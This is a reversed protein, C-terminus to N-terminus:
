HAHGHEEHEHDHCARVETVEEVRGAALAAIADGVTAAAVHVVRIGKRGLQDLAGGGIANVIVCDVARGELSRLPQCPGPGHAHNANAITTCAGTATDVLAFRPTAGFHGAMPSDLGADTVAPVCVLM